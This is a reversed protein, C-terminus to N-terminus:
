HRAECSIKQVALTIIANLKLGLLYKKMRILNNHFDYTDVKHTLSVDTKPLNLRSPARAKQWATSWHIVVVSGQSVERSRPVVTVLHLLLSTASNGGTCINFMLLPRRQEWLNDWSLNLFFFCGESAETFMVYFVDSFSLYLFHGAQSCIVRWAPWVANWDYNMPNNKIVM